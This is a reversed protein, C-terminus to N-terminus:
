LAPYGAQEEVPVVLGDLIGDKRGSTNKGHVTRNVPANGDRGALIFAIAM